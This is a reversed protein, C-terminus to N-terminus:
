LSSFIAKLDDSRKSIPTRSKADKATSYAYPKGDERRITNSRKFFGIISLTNESFYLSFLEYFERCSPADLRFYIKSEHIHWDERFVNIFDEEQTEETIIMDYRVLGNYLDTLQANTGSVNFNKKRKLQQKIKPIFVNKFRKSWTIQTLFIGSIFVFWNLAYFFTSLTIDPELFTSYSGHMLVLGLGYFVLRPKELYKDWGVPENFMFRAFFGVYPILLRIYVYAFSLLLLYKIIVNPM